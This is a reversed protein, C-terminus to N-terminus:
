EGSRADDDAGSAFGPNYRPTFQEPPLMRYLVVWAVRRCRTVRTIFSSDQAKGGSPPHDVPCPGDDRAYLDEMGCAYVSRCVNKPAQGLPNYRRPVDLSCSSARHLRPFERPLPSVVQRAM